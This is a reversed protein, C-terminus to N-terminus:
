SLFWEFVGERDKFGSSIPTWLMGLIVGICYVSTGIILYALILIVKLLTIM